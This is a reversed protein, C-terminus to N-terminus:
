VGGKSPGILHFVGDSSGLFRFLGKFAGYFVFLGMPKILSANVCCFVCLFFLLVMIDFGLCFSLM